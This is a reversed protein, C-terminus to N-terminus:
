TGSLESLSMQYKARDRAWMRKLVNLSETEDFATPEQKAYTLRYLRAYIGDTDLLELHSGSEVISGKDLVVIRDVSRITSLRHAIIISTRGKMVQRIATQILAETHSDVNATAEDLILIRPDSVIARAFAILQRQGVSLNQGRESLLTKYGEPLRLIWEHAGVIKAACEIDKENADLRGYRINEEVTGAFLFPDQLVTGMRRNLSQRELERVDDGDIRVEGNTVDYTRGILATISTKGAGTEGVLAVTEGERIHM